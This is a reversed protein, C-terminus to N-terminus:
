GDMMLSFLIWIWGCRGGYQSCCCYVIYYPFGDGDLLRVVSILLREGWWISVWAQFAKMFGGVEEIYGVIFM